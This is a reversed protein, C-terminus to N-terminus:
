FPVWTRKRTFHVYGASIGQRLGVGTRIPAVIMDGSQYYNVGVGAVFFFAGEIGPFRKFIEATKGLNYVLMFAQSGSGGFDFGASPGTWYVKVRRNQQKRLLEGSGYRLGVVFAGSIDSGQIIANPRGYTDFVQKIVNALGESTAGFFSKGADLVEEYTYTDETTTPTPGAASLVPRGLLACSALVALFLRDRLRNRHTPPVHCPTMDPGVSEAPHRAPEGTAGSWPWLSAAVPSKRAYKLRSRVPM